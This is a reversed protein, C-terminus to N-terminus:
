YDIKSIKEGLWWALAIVFVVFVMIMRGWGVFLPRMYTPAIQKFLVICVIPMVLIIRNNYKPANLIRSIESETDIRMRYASTLWRMLGAMNIGAPIGVSIIEAFTKIEQNETKKALISFVYESSYNNQLMRYMSELEARLIRYENKGAVAAERVANELSMGSSMAMSLQSLLVYFEAETAAQRQKKLWFKIKKVFIPLGCLALFISIIWREFVTMFIFLALAIYIGIFCILKSKNNFYKQLVYNKKKM